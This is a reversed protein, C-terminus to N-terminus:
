KIARQGAVSWCSRYEDRLSVSMMSSFSSNDVDFPNIKVSLSRSKLPDNELLATQPQSFSPHYYNKSSNDLLHVIHLFIYVHRCDELISNM